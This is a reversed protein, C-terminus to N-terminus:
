LLVCHFLIITKLARKKSTDLSQKPIQLTITPMSEILFIIRKFLSLSYKNDSILILKSFHSVRQFTGKLFLRCEKPKEQILRLSHSIRM